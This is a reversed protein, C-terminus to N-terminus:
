GNVRTVYILWTYTFIGTGHIDHIRYSLLPDWTYMLFVSTKKRQSVTSFTVNTRKLNLHKNRIYRQSIPMFTSRTKPHPNPLRKLIVIFQIQDRIIKFRNIGSSPVCGWLKVDFSFHHNCFLFTRIWPSIKLHIINFKVPIEGFYLSRTKTKAM